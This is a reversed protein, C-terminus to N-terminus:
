PFPMNLTAGRKSVFCNSFIKRCLAKGAIRTLVYNRFSSTFTPDAKSKPRIVKKGLLLHPMGLYTNKAEWKLSTFKRSLNTNM